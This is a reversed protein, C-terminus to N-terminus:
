NAPERRGGVLLDGMNRMDQSTPTTREFTPHGRSANSRTATTRAARNATATSTGGTTANAPADPLPLAPARGLFDRWATGPLPPPRPPRIGRLQRPRPPRRLRPTMTKPTGRRPRRTHTRPHREGAQPNSSGSPQHHPVIPRLHSPHTPVRRRGHSARPAHHPIQAIRLRKHATPMTKFDDPRADRQAHRVTSPFLARYIQMQHRTPTPKDRHPRQSAHRYGPHRIPADRHAAFTQPDGQLTRIRRASEDPALIHRQPHPGHDPHSSRGWAPRRRTKRLRASM